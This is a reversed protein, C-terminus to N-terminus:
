KRFAQRLRRVQEVIDKPDDRAINRLVPFIADEVIIGRNQVDAFFLDLGDVLHGASSLAGIYKRHMLEIEGLRRNWDNETKPGDILTDRWGQVTSAVAVEHGAIVGQVFLLKLLRGHSALHESPLGPAHEPKELDVWWHGDVRPSSQAHAPLTVCLALIAMTISRRLFVAAIVLANM